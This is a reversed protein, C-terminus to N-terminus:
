AFIKSLRYPRQFTLYTIPYVSDHGLVDVASVAM